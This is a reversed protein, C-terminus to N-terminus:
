SIEVGVPVLKDFGNIAVQVAMTAVPGRKEIAVSQVGAFTPDDGFMERAADALEEADLDANSSGVPIDLGFDPHHLLSGRPVSLAIRVQQVINTLGTAFPTDGEPTMVLDGTPTLLLDIGAVRVLPDFEDVGPIGKTHYDGEAAERNSPIYITQRSNVTDPLFAHLAADNNLKYLSVDKDLTIVTMSESVKDIRSVVAKLKVVTKSYVTVAQNPRLPGASAVTVQKGSGNTIFPLSYGEEDVFPTRLGNLTAIEGWRDPDGLYRQALRELTAGYPFPVAFKSRATQWAIGSASALGAIYEMPSVATRDTDGSAALHDLEIAAQNLAFMVDYDDDTAERVPAPRSRGYMRDYTDDGLGVADAYIEAVARVQDRAREFDSRTLGQVRDRERVIADVTSPTLNLDGPRVESFFEYHAEPDDFIRNAPDADLTSSRSAIDGAGTEGKSLAAGLAKLEEWEHSTESTQQEFAAPVGQATDRISALEIVAGKASRLVEKPLDGMAVVTGIADKIFLSIERLPEFILRSLDGAIAFITKRAGYLVRRSDEVTKLARSLKDPDRVIPSLREESEPVRDLSVRKFARGQFTYSYEFVDPVSRQLNWNLPTVLYVAEDKWIALALRADQGDKSAKLAAYRELFQQFLRIQYYGTTRGISDRDNIDTKKILNSPTRNPQVDQKIDAVARQVGSAQQLSGAFIAEALTFPKLPPASGRLPLVGTTGSIQIPRPSFRGWQEVYGGLTAHGDVPFTMGMQLAQPPIPLTFTWADDRRYGGSKTKRLVLLQYPFSRNWNLSEIQRTQYWHPVERYPSTNEAALQLSTHRTANKPAGAVHDLNAAQGFIARM